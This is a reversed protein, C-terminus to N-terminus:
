RRRPDRKKRSGAFLQSTQTALRPGFFWLLGLCPLILLATIPRIVILVLSILSTVMLWAPTKALFRDVQPWALWLAGLVLGIKIMSGSASKAGAPTSWGVAFIAGGIFLALAILGLAHRRITTALDM